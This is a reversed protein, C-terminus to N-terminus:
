RFSTTATTSEGFHLDEFISIQFTGDSSFQLPALFDTGQTDDQPIVAGFSLMAVVIVLLLAIFMRAFRCRESTAFEYLPPRRPSSWTFEQEEVDELPQYSQM